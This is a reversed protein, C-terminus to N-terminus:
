TAVVRVGHNNRGEHLSENEITPKFISTDERGLKANLNQLVIKMHYKPFHYFVQEIEEYFRDNTDDSEDETPAHANLVIIDCWHGKLGIYSM